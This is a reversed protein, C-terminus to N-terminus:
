VTTTTTTTTTTTITTTTIMTTHRPSPLPRSLLRALPSPFTRLGQSAAAGGLPPGSASSGQQRSGFYHRRRPTLQIWSNSDVAGTLSTNAIRHHDPSKLLHPITTQSLHLSPKLFFLAFLLFSRIQFRWILCSLLHYSVLVCRQIMIFLLFLKYTIFFFLIWMCFIFFLICM